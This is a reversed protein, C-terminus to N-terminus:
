LDIYYKKGQSKMKNEQAKNVAWVNVVDGTINTVETWYRYKPKKIQLIGILSKAQELTLSHAVKSKWAITSAVIM